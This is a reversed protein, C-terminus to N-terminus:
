RAHVAVALRDYWATQEAPSSHANAPSPNPIVFLRTRGLRIPQEGLRPAPADPALVQVVRRYGMIGQFCAIGPAHQELKRILRPVDAAFDAATLGNVGPTPRKVVDTFGIGHDLLMADHEPGLADAGLARRVPESLVSRSFSPWFRNTKRAFYHGQAVSFPAPNIGVFVLDLGDRLLDPLSMGDHSM